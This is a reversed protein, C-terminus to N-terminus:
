SGGGVKVMVSLAIGDNVIETVGIEVWLLSVSVAVGFVGGWMASPTGNYQQYLIMPRGGLQPCHASHLHALVAERALVTKRAANLV